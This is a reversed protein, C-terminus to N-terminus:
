STSLYPEGKKEKKQSPKEYAGNDRHRKNVRSIPGFLLERAAAHVTGYPSDFSYWFNYVKYTLSRRAM